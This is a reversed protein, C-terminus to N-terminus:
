SKLICLHVLCKRGKLMKFKLCHSFFAYVSKLLTYKRNSLPTCPPIPAGWETQVQTSKPPELEPFTEWPTHRLQVQFRRMSTVSESCLCMWSAVSGGRCPTGMNRTGYQITLLGEQWGILGGAESHHLVHSYWHIECVPASHWM